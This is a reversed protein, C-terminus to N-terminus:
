WKALNDSLFGYSSLTSVISESFLYYLKKLLWNFIFIFDLLLIM